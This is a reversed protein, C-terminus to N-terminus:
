KKKAPKVFLSDSVEKNIEYNETVFHNSFVQGNAGKFKNEISFPMMAGEVEKYNGPYSESESENGQVFTVSIVKIPVFNEADIFDTENDGNAKVVKIKYVSTGDMEEKGLLELKHGKTQWDVLVGEFDAQEKMVKVEDGTMDQPDSTGAWPSINWGVQGDFASIMKNGQIEVETRIKDPRKMIIKVPFEMGQNKAKGTLIVTNWKKIYEMGVTEYYKSLIEDMKMEQTVASFSFFLIASLLTLLSKKM